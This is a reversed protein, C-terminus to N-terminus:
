SRPTFTAAAAWSAPPKRAPLPSARQPQQAPRPQGTPAPAPTTTGSVPATSPPAPSASQAPPTSTASENRPAPTPAPSPSETARRRQEGDIIHRVRDVVRKNKGRVAQESADWPERVLVEDMVVIETGNQWRVPMTKALSAFVARAIAPAATNRAERALAEAAVARDVRRSVAANTLPASLMREESALLPVREEEGSTGQAVDVSAIHQRHVFHYSPRQQDAPTDASPADTRIVLLDSAFTFVVGQLKSPPSSKTTVTVRRDLLEDLKPLAAGNEQKAAQQQQKQQGKQQAQSPAQQASSAQQQSNPAKAQARGGGQQHQQHQQQQGGGQKAQLSPTIPRAWANPVPKKQQQQQAQSGPQQGGPPPTGRGAAHHQQGGGGGGAAAAGGSRGHHQQSSRRPGGTPQGRPREASAGSAM